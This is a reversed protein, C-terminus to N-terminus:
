ATVEVAPESTNQAFVGDIYARLRLRAESPTQQTVFGTSVDVLRYVMSGTAADREVSRQSDVRVEAPASSQAAVGVPAAVPQVSEASRYDRSPTMTVTGISADM